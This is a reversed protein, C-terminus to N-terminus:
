PTPAFTGVSVREQSMPGAHWALTLAGSGALGHLTGVLLPRLAFAAGFVHVHRAATPHAHAHGGHAHAVVEGNSGLRRARVIARAGLGVLMAAVALEFGRSAAESLHAGVLVLGIAAAVLAVTHGLGWMAGLLFGRGVAHGRPGAECEPVMTSVAALHDPEFAHRVGVVLGLLAGTVIAM